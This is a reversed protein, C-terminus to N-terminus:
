LSDVKQKITKLFFVYAKEVGSNLLELITIAMTIIFTVVMVAIELIVAGLGGIIGIVFAIGLFGLILSGIIDWIEGTRIGFSLAYLLYFFILGVIGLLAVAGCEVIADYAGYIASQISKLFMSCGWFLIGLVACWFIIFIAM